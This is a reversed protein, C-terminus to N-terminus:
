RGASDLENALRRDTEEFSASATLFGEALAELSEALKSRRADWRNGLTNYADNVRPSCALSAAGIDTYREMEAATSRLRTSLNELYVRAVRIESM